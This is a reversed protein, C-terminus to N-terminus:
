CASCLSEEQYCFSVAFSIMLASLAVLRIVTAGAQRSGLAKGLPRGILDVRRSWTEVSWSSAFALYNEFSDKMYSLSPKEVVYIRFRKEIYNDPHCVFIHLYM